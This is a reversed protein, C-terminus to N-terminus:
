GPPAGDGRALIGLTRRGNQRLGEEGRGPMAGAPVAPRPKPQGALRRTVGTMEVYPRRNTCRLRQRTVQKKM